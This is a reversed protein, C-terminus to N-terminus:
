GLRDLAKQMGAEADDGLKKFALVLLPSIVVALNKMLGKFRFDANYTVRTGAGAPTFTMTDVAKVTKNNGELVFRSGPVVERVVYELETRRGMFSSVNRYRTGVGGDGSVRTTEVTGPDWENTTTFDSLYAFVKEPPAATEVTRTIEM